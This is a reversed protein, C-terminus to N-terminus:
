KLKMKNIVPMYGEVLMQAALKHQEPDVELGLGEVLRNMFNWTSCIMLVDYLARESWGANFVAQSDAPIMKTPHLTLKKMYHFVPKFNDDIDATDIDALLEELLGEKVGFRQAILIHINACYGCDDMVGSVYAAFLEREALSFPSDENRMLAEMLLMLPKEVGINFKALALALRDNREISPFNPM